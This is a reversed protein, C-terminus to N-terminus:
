SKAADVADAVDAAAVAAVIAVKEKATLLSPEKVLDMLTAADILLGKPTEVKVKYVDGKRDKFLVQLLAGLQKSDTTFHDMSIAGCFSSVLSNREDISPAKLGFAERWVAYHKKEDDTWKKRISFDDRMTKSLVEAAIGRPFQKANEPDAFVAWLLSYAPISADHEASWGQGNSDKQEALGQIFHNAEHCVRDFCWYYVDRRARGRGKRGIQYEDMLYQFHADSYLEPHPFNLQKGAFNAQYSIEFQVMFEEGSPTIPTPKVQSLYSQIDKLDPLATGLIKSCMALVTSMTTEYDFQKPKDLLEEVKVVAAQVQEYTVDKSEKADKSEKFKLSIEKRDKSVVTEWSLVENVSQKIDDFAETVFQDEFRNLTTLNLVANSKAEKDFAHFLDLFSLVRALKPGAM